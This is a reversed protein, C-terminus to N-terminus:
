YLSPPVAKIFRKARLGSHSAKHKLSLYELKFVAYISRPPLDEGHPREITFGPIIRAIFEFGAIIVAPPFFEPLSVLNYKSPSDPSINGPQVRGVGM